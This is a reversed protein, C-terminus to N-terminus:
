YISFWRVNVVINGFRARDACVLEDFPKELRIPVIRGVSRVLCSSKTVIQALDEDLVHPGFLHVSREELPIDDRTM